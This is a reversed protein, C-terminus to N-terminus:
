PRSSPTWTRNATMWPPSNPDGETQMSGNADASSDSTSAEGSSEVQTSDSTNEMEEHDDAFATTAALAMAIATSGILKM